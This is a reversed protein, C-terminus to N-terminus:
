NVIHGYWNHKPTVFHNNHLKCKAKVEKKSVLEKAYDLKNRPIFQRSEKEMVGRGLYLYCPFEDFPRNSKFLLKYFTHILYIKRTEPDGVLFYENPDYFYNM